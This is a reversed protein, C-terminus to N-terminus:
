TRGLKARRKRSEGEIQVLSATARQLYRRTLSWITAYAPVTAAPSLSASLEGPALRVPAAALATAEGCAWFDLLFVASPPM